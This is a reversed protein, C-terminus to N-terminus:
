SKQGNARDRKRNPSELSRENRKHKLTIRKLEVLEPMEKLLARVNEDGKALVGIVYSDALNKADEKMNTYKTALRLNSLVINSEDGDVTQVFHGKPIPGYVMRWLWTKYRIPRTVNGRFLIFTSNQSPAFCIRVHEGNKLPATLKKKPGRSMRGRIDMQQECTRKLGMNKILQGINSSTLQNHCDPFQSRINECLEVNSQDLNNRVYESVEPPWPTARKALFGNVSRVPLGIKEALEARSFKTYNELAFAAKEQTWGGTGKIWKPKPM